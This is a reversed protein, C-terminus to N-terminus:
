LQRLSRTLLVYVLHDLLPDIALYELLLYKDEKSLKSPGGIESLDSALPANNSGISPRCSGSSVSSSPPVFFSSHQHFSPPSVTYLHAHM